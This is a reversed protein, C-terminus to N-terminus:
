PLRRESIPHRHFSGSRPLHALARSISYHFRMAGSHGPEPASARVNACSVPPLPKSKAWRSTPGNGFPERRRSIESGLPHPM